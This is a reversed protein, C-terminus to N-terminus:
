RRLINRQHDLGYHGNVLSAQNGQCIKFLNFFFIINGKGNLGKLLAKDISLVKTSVFHIFLPTLHLFFTIWHMTFLLQNLVHKVPRPTLMLTPPFLFVFLDYIEPHFSIIILSNFINVFYNTQKICAEQWPSKLNSNWIRCWDSLYRRLLVCNWDRSIKWREIGVYVRLLIRVSVQMVSEDIQM